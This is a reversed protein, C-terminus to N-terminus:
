EYHLTTNLMKQENATESVTTTPNIEGGDGSSGFRVDEKAEREEAGDADDDADDDDDGDDFSVLQAKAVCLHRKM